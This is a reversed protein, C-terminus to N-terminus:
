QSHIDFYRSTTQLCRVTFAKEWYFSFAKRSLLKRYIPYATNGRATFYSTERRRPHFNMEECVTLFTITRNDLM